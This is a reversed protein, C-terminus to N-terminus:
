LLFALLHNPSQTIPHQSPAPNYDCTTQVQARDARRPRRSSRPGLRDRVGGPHPCPSATALPRRGRAVTNSGEPTLRQFRPPTCPRPGDSALQLLRKPSSLLCFRFAFPKALLYLGGTAVVGSRRLAGLRLHAAFPGCGTNTGARRGECELDSEDGVLGQNSGGRELPSARAVARPELSVLSWASPQMAAVVGIGRLVVLTRPLLPPTSHSGHLM